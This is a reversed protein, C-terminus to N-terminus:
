CILFERPEVRTYLSKLLQLQCFKTRIAEYETRSYQLHTLHSAFDTWKKFAREENMRLEETTWSDPIDELAKSLHGAWESLKLEGLCMSKGRLGPLDLQDISDMLVDLMEELLHSIQAILEDRTQGQSCWETHDSPSHYVNCREHAPKNIDSIVSSRLGKLTNLDSKWDSVELIKPMSDLLLFDIWGDLYLSVNQLATYFDSTEGPSAPGTSSEPHGELYEMWRSYQMLDMVSLSEQPCGTPVLSINGEMLTGWCQLFLLQHPEFLVLRLLLVHLHDELAPIGRGVRSTLPGLDINAVLALQCLSAITYLGPVRGREKLHLFVDCNPVEVIWDKRVDFFAYSTTSLIGWWAKLKNSKSETSAKWLYQVQSRLIPDFAISLLQSDLRFIPYANILLAGTEQFVRPRLVGLVDRGQWHGFDPARRRHDPAVPNHYHLGSPLGAQITPDRSPKAVYIARGTGLEWTPVWSLLGKSLTAWKLINSQGHRILFYAAIGTYVDESGKTYDAVLGELHAGQVLGLLAFIKDRPDTAHCSATKMFLESAADGDGDVSPGTLQTWSPFVHPITHGSMQGRLINSLPVSSGGLVVVAEKSLLVEQIVWIRSWYPRCFLAQLAVYDRERTWTFQARNGAYFAEEGMRSMLAGEPTQENGDEGLFIIVRRANSYIDRMLGVQHSREGTNDQDICISDVWVVRVETRSRLRRLAAACNSTIPLPTWESGIFITERLSRDGSTDAWTYSLATFEPRLFLHSPLLNGHLAQNDGSSSPSLHLLRVEDQGTLTRHVVSGHKSSLSENKGISDLVGEDPLATWPSNSTNSRLREWLIDLRAIPDTEDFEQDDEITHLMMREDQFRKTWKLATRVGDDAVDAPSHFTITSPWDLNLVTRGTDWRVTPTTISLEGIHADEEATPPVYMSGCGICTPVNDMLLVDPRRCEKEHWSKIASM